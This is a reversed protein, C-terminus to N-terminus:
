WDSSRGWASRLADAFGKRVLSASDRTGPCLTKPPCLDVRQGRQCLALGRVVAAEGPGAAQHTVPALRAGRRRGGGRFLPSM